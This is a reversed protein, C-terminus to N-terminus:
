WVPVEMWQGDPNLLTDQGSGLQMEMADMDDFIRGVVNAQLLAPEPLQEDLRNWAVLPEAIALYDTTREDGLALFVGSQSM